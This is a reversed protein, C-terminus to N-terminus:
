QKKAEQEKLIREAEKKKEQVAAFEEFVNKNHLLTHSFEDM